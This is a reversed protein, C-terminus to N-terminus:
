LTRITIKHFRARFAEEQGGFVASPLGGHAVVGLVAEMGHVTGHIAGDAVGLITGLTIGLIIGHIIGPITGRTIGPITGHIIGHITGLIIGRTIGLIIGDMALILIEGDQIGDAAGPILDM